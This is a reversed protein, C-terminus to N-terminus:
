ILNVRRLVDNTFRTADPRVRLGLHEPDQEVLGLAILRDLRSRSMSEAEQLVAAIESEMLSGHEQIALLTFHDEQALEARFQAFAPELPQRIKLTEGEVREISSLWLEFASRFVGGSQQFLSDFYLKQPSDELALWQKVRSIRPDVEPPPAFELRLGSLRHREHIANELHERSVNMANIRHSFVRGFSVAADAVRFAKDNMAIVWLTTSATRHIWRILHAIGKFGGVKRLYTREAEEIMLIRRENAFAAELDVDEAVGILQRLFREVSERTLTRERFLGRIVERGAFAGAAACNLLSTKGSGRGGVVLCAAFRGADWDRLAQELGDLEQDRGVLFRRDEIPALRFLSSYITPLEGKSAPLALTDRLTARRVVPPATPRPPLKGGLTELTRDWRDALWRGAHEAGTKANRKGRRITTHLLRRGRPQRLLAIWGFQAAELAASGEESWAWFAEVLQPELEEEAAPTQLQDALVVAANHRADAFLSEEQGKHAHAAERWYDIIEKARSAERGVSATGEWYQEVIQQMPARCYTEFARVFAGRPKIARWSTWRGPRVLESQEALRKEVEEHIEHALGRLREDPTALQMAEVPATTGSLAGEEIWDVMRHSISFVDRREERISAVLEGTLDFWRLALERLAVEMELLANVGRQQRWWTDFRKQRTPDAVDKGTKAGAGRSWKGYQELLAAAQKARKARREEWNKWEDEHGGGRRIRWPECLDLAAKSLLTQFRSDLRARSKVVSAGAEQDFEQMAELSRRLPRLRLYADVPQVLLAQTDSEYQQRVETLTGTVRGSGRLGASTEALKSTLDVLVDWASQLEACLREPGRRAPRVLEGSPTAM